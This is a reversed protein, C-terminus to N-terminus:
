KQRASSMRKHLKEFRTSVWSKVDSEGGDGVDELDKYRDVYGCVAQVGKICRGQTDQSLPRGLMIKPM